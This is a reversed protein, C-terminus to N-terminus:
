QMRSKEKEGVKRNWRANVVRYMNWNNTIM